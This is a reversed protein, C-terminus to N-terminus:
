ARVAFELTSRVSSHIVVLPGTPVSPFCLITFFRDSSVNGQFGKGPSVNGEYGKVPSVKGKCGKLLPCMGRAVRQYLSLNGKCGKIQCPVCEGKWDRQCPVCEGRLGKAPSVKGKCGKPLPCRGRAVRQCPFIEGAGRELFGNTGFSPSV